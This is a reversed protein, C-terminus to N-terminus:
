QFKFIYRVGAFNATQRAKATVTTGDTTTGYTFPTGDAFMWTWDDTRWREHIFDLRIDSQKDLAYKAFLSFRTLRNDIDDLNNVAGANTVQPYESRTKSLQLDAGLSIRAFMKGRIGIGLSDGKERLDATRIFTATTLDGNRQKAKTDDHSYWASISWDDNLTYSADFTYISAEGDILGYPRNSKTDYNDRANEYAFQTNLSELPTWDLSLRWKDRTRDAINIPNVYDAAAGGSGAGARHYTSGDRDTRLYSISGNVTESMSKRAEVRYTTEDINSRMPVVRQLDVGSANFNGVPISRDQDRKDVGATVSYGYPLRYTAELKGTITRYSFPTNEICQGAGCAANTQIYRREATKDDLDHYRLNAVLSLEKIPRSTLGLQVLTTDLRGNLSYPAGAWSLGSVFRTPINEDQTARGYSMKFTGRTTPTFNYGGEFFLQHAQNDLPLSLYIPTAGAATTYVLSNHNDYWSGYYGGALQLKEGTYDVRAEFQRTTSDIPEVAFEPAGGRGWQRTGNKEENKFSASFDIGPVLNKFFRLGTADRKTGLEIDAGRGPTITVLNQRESSKGQIGSNIQLPNDRTTRSYDFGIGIDGQRLYDASFERSDLGLNRGVATMWTGDADNRKVVNFDVLGYAGSDRMGDYMGQQPRDGSWNGVGVSVSSEPTSLAAIEEDSAVAQGFAGLLAVALASRRFVMHTNNKM